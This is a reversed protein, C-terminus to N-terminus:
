AIIGLKKAKLIAQTRNRVELKEFINSTHTKVTNTSVFLADAIEQNSFGQNVLALVEFERKSIGLENQSFEQELHDSEKKKIFSKKGFWLGLGLFLFAICGIYIELYNLKIWFIYEASIILFVLLGLICGYILVTKLM